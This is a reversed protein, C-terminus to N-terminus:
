ARVQQAPEAESRESRSVPSPGAEARPPRGPLMLALVVAVVVLLAGVAFALQVGSMQAPVEAVGTTELSAMRVSMVTVLLATGAGGAVQQLTGVLASGHSYEKPRLSNLGATMTPTFTLGLAVSIGAWLAVLMWVPTDLAALRSITFLLVSLLLVGPVVLVRPGVRDYLRGVIPGMLGMVLGGPLLILGTQVPSLARLEQLYIPFLVAGGLLAGFCVMMVGVAMAFTRNRFTRLDLLPRDERQLVIQRSVFGALGALGVLLPAILLLLNGGGAGEGIQTLAYVLGGFGLASLIVSAIDVPARTTTGFNKLRLFGATGMLLAIPLVLGFILRWTGFQLILGSVTPGLAPAVSIVISVNGMMRGRREIPVLTLITTMLLPMMMATGSAQVVRGLLLVGFVPAIGCILTGLSFLGMSLVYVQRTRLRQLIFGSLPIVTAMTLLFATTVWQATTADVDFATMLRPIALGMTTENLILVFASLLLIPIIGRTDEAPPAAPAPHSDHM